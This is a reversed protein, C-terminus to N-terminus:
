RAACESLTDAGNPSGVIALGTVQSWFEYALNLDTVNIVACRLMGISM